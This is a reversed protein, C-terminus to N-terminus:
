RKDIRAGCCLARPPFNSADLLQLRYVQYHPSWRGAVRCILRKDQHVLKTIASSIEVHRAVGRGDTRSLFSGMRACIGSCAPSTRSSLTSLHFHILSVYLGPHISSILLGGPPFRVALASARVCKRHPAHRDRTRIGSLRRVPTVALWCSHQNQARACTCPHWDQM